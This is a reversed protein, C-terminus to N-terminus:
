PTVISNTQTYDGFTTYDHFITTGRRFIRNIQELDSAPINGHVLEDGAGVKIYNFKTRSLINPTKIANVCYGYRSFFNDIIRAYEAKITIVSAYFTLINASYAVDGANSNGRTQNPIFEANKRRQLRDLQLSLYNEVIEGGSKFNASGESPLNKFQSYGFNIDEFKENVANQTLWNTYADTSWSCNPMKGATLGLNYEKPYLHPDNPYQIADYRKYNTPYLKISCGPCIVGEINFTPTNNLSEEYKYIVENGANNNIALYQYPFCLLKNNKPTYGDIVTNLQYQINTEISIPRISAPVEIYYVDLDGSGWSDITHKTPTLSLMNGGITFINIISDIQGWGNYAKILNRVQTDSNFYLYVYGSFLNGYISQSPMDGMGHDSLYKNVAVIYNAAGLKDTVRSCGKIIYDGTELGEEITHLGVTDDDVHEREIFAQGITMSSYWTSFVDVTFEITTCNNSVYRVKDVFAFYWKNGYHPNKFAIYNAYICSAYPLSIDISNVTPDLIAYNKSTAIMNNRCLTVMSSEDYSLVNVFDKDLKIGQCLILESDKM